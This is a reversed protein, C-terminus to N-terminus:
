ARFLVPENINVFIHPHYCSTHHVSILRFQSFVLLLSTFLFM